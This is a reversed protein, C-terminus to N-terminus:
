QAEPLVPVVVLSATFGYDEAAIKCRTFQDPNYITGLKFTGTSGSPISVSLSGSDYQDPTGSYSGAYYMRCTAAGTAGTTVVVYCHYAQCGKGNGTLANDITTPTNSNEAGASMTQSAQAIITSEYIMPIKNSM